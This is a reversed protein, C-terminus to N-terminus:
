QDAERPPLVLVQGARLQGPDTLDPNSKHIVQWIQPNWRGYQRLAIQRMTDGREVRVRDPEPLRPRTAPIPAPVPLPAASVTTPAAWSPATATRARTPAPRWQGAGVAAGVVLLVGAAAAWRFRPREHKAPQLETQGVRKKGEALAASLAQFCITNINRPIGASLDAVTRLARRTFVRGRQRGAVRMRHEVYRRVEAADLERIQAWIAVRQRLAEGELALGPQGALIIDMLKEEPTELNSLRRIEELVEPPIGQAEDFVLLLRRGRRRSEAVQDRLRGCNEAYSSGPALGLDELVAAIMQERTEPPRYLFVIDAKDKWREVLHHLLTTKGMGPRAVLVLLGRREVLGYHLAALAEAHEQSFYLFKPNPAAGFPDERFGFHRAYM